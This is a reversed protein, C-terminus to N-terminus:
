QIIGKKVTIKEESVGNSLHITILDIQAFLVIEESLKKHLKEAEGDISSGETYTLNFEIKENSIGESSYQIGYAGIGLEVNQCNCTEFLVNEMQNTNGIHATSGEYFGYSITTIFLLLLTGFIGKLANKRLVDQKTKM